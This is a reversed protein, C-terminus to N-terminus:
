KKSRASALNEKVRYKVIEAILKKPLPKDFPLQLTGKATKFDKLKAAFARPISRPYFGYHHRFAAFWCLAGNLRFSPMGYSIVEEARPAAKKILKRLERLGEQVAAPQAAIYEDITNVSKKAM